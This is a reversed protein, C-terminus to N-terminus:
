VTDATRVTLDRWSAAAAFDRVGIAGRLFTCDQVAASVPAASPDAAPTGDVAISCGVVRVTLHYWTDASLGGPIATGALEKWGYKERGIILSSGSVGVYYGDLSDTGTAPDSARVLLGANGNPSFHGVRVDGQLVYNRWGTDGIVAKNGGTGAMSETYAGGAVSWHGGYDKWGHAGAGFESAYLLTGGAGGGATPATNADATARAKATATSRPPSPRPSTPTTRASPSGTLAPLAEETTPAATPTSSTEATGGARSDGGHGPHGGLLMLPVVVAFAV